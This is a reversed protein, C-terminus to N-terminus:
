TNLTGSFLLQIERSGFGNDSPLSNIEEFDGMCRLNPNDETSVDMSAFINLGSKGALAFGETILKVAKEQDETM